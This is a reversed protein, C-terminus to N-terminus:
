LFPFTGAYFFGIITWCSLLSLQRKINLKKRACITKNNNKRQLKVYFICLDSYIRMWNFYSFCFM